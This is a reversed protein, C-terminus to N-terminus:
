IVAKVAPCILRDRINSDWARVKNEKGHMNSAVIQASVHFGM